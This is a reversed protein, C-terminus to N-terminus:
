APSSKRWAMRRIATCACSMASGSGTAPWTAGTERLVPVADDYASMDDPHVYIRGYRPNDIFAEVKHGTIAEINSSIFKVPREGALDVIYFIVSSQSIAFDLLIRERDRPGPAANPQWNPDAM